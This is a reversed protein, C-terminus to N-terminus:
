EAPRRGPGKVAPVPRSPSIVSASPLRGRRGDAITVQMQELCSTRAALSDAQRVGPQDPPANMRGGEPTPGPTTSRRRVSTEPRCWSGDTLRISPTGPEAMAPRVFALGIYRGVHPSWSISTVRGAIDGGDIVLHCELPVQRCPGGALMFGALQAQAAEALIQLSRKGVFFPKDMKVAWDM